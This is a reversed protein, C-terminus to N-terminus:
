ELDTPALDAYLLRAEGAPGRRDGVALIRLVRIRDGQAFTLVDGVGVGHGPKSCPQSNLRLHGAEVVEAALARSKFFRARFLWTDLRLKPTPDM